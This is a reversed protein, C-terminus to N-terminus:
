PTKGIKEFFDILETTKSKIQQSSKKKHNSPAPIEDVVYQRALYRSDMNELFDIRELFDILKANNRPTSILGKKKTTVNVNNQTDECCM